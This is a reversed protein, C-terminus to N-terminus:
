KRKAVTVKRDYDKVYCGRQLSPPDTEKSYAEGKDFTCIASVAMNEFIRGQASYVLGREIWAASV